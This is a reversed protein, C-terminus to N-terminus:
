SKIHQTLLRHVASVTHSNQMGAKRFRDNRKPSISKSIPHMGDPFFPAPHIYKKLEM